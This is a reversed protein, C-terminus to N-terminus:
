GGYASYKQIGKHWLCVSLLTFLLIWGLQISFGIILEPFSLSNTFIEFPFAVSYRFPLLDAITKFIGSYLYIPVIIGGFTYDLIDRLNSLSTVEDLWFGAMGMLTELSFNIFFAMILAIFFLFMNSLQLHLDQPFIIFGITVMPLLFFIKIIKEALNNTFMSLFPSIPKILLRNVAGTRIDDAFFIGQWAGTFMAILPFLLYYSILSSRSLPISPNTSLITDWVFLQTFPFFFTEFMWIAIMGPYTTSSQIDARLYAPFLHFTFM